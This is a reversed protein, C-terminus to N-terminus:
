NEGGRGRGLGGGSRRGGRQAVPSSSGFASSVYARGANSLVGMAAPISQRGGSGVEIDSSGDEVDTDTHQYSGAEPVDDDLDRTEMSADMDLGPEDGYDGDGEEAPLGDEEDIWEHGEDADPIDDDLDREQDDLGSEDDGLMAVDGDRAQEELLRTQADHAELERVNVSSNADTTPALLLVWRHIMVGYRLGNAEQERREAEEDQM